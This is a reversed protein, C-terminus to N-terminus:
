FFLLAIKSSKYKNKNELGSIYFAVRMDGIITNKKQNHYRYYNKKKERKKSFSKMAIKNVRLTKALFRILPFRLRLTYTRHRTLVTVQLVLTIGSFFTIVRDM